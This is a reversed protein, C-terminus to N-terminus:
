RLPAYASLGTPLSRYSGSIIPPLLSASKDKKSKTAPSSLKDRSPPVPASPQSATDTTPATPSKTSKGGLLGGFIGGLLPKKPATKEPIKDAAAFATVNKLEGDQKGKAVSAKRGATNTASKANRANAVQTVVTNQDKGVPGRAAISTAGAKVPTKALQTKPEEKSKAKLPRGRNDLAIEVPGRALADPRSVTAVHAFSEHQGGDAYVLKIPNVGGTILAAIQAEDSLQKRKVAAVLPENQKLPPCIGRPNVTSSGNVPAANFVYQRNCVMISPERKAVDFTDSGEKLKKWFKYDRDLRHKALNKPTMRFPLSQLQVKKQGGSFAERVVAYIESIQTDTMSFCGRSSCAGHVMIHSGTRGNARDYANPYGVNFSLYYASNPNMRQPTVYYFGEPVQRDGERRKPGLQGSWRCMPYTKLLGYAGDAKMKWVELEAEKKFARILVPSYKTTGIKDMLALTAEPIPQYARSNGLGGEDQCGTLMLALAGALATVRAKSPVVKEMEGFNRM